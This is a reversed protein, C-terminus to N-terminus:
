LMGGGSKRFAEDEDETEQKGKAIASVFLFISLPGGVLVVGASPVFGYAPNGGLLDFLWVTM